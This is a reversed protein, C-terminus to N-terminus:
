GLEDDLGSEAWVSGMRNAKVVGAFYQKRAMAVEMLYTVPISLAGTTSSGMTGSAGIVTEGALSVPITGLPIARGAVWIGYWTWPSRGDGM